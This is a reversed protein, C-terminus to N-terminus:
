RAAAEVGGGGVESCLDGGGSSPLDHAQGAAVVACERAGVLRDGDCCGTSSAWLHPDAKTRTVGAKDQVAHRAHAADDAAGAVDRDPVAGECVANIELAVVRINDKIVVRVVPVSSVRTADVRLYEKGAGIAAGHCRWRDGDLVALDLVAVQVANVDTSGAVLDQVVDELVETVNAGVVGVVNLKFTSGSDADGPVVNMSASTLGLANGAVITPGHADDDFVIDYVNGTGPTDLKVRIAIRNHAM